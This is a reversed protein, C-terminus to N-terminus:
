LPGQDEMGGILVYPTQVNLPYNGDKTEVILVNKETMAEDSAYGSRNSTTCVMDLDGRLAQLKQMAAIHESLKMVRVKNTM